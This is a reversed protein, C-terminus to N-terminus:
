FYSVIEIHPFVVFISNTSDTFYKAQKSSFIRSEIGIGLLNNNVIKTALSSKFGAFFLPDNKIALIGLTTSFYSIMVENINTVFSSVLGGEFRYEDQEIRRTGLFVGSYTAGIPTSTSKYKVDFDVGEHNTGNFSTDSLFNIDKSDACHAYKNQFLALFIIGVLSLKRILM